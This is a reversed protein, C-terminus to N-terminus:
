ALIEYVPNLIALQGHHEGVVGQAKLRVGVAIGPVERRGLFVVAVGGSDDALTCELAPVGSWPQVRMSRIRGSVMVRQRHEVAGIPITGDDNPTAVLTAAAGDGDSTGPADGAAVKHAPRVEVPTPKLDLHYPVVTVNCHPLTSLVKVMEDSTRDHLLRHWFRSYERRPILVSVETEGDALEQAAIEAAAQTVRRDQCEVIDLSLRGPAFTRRWGSASEFEITLRLESIARTSDPWVRDSLLAAVHDEYQFRPVADDPQHELFAKTLRGSKRADFLPLRGGHILNHVLATIFVTKGARSLGTVGLRLSPSGFGTLRGALTDLAIRAEDTLTTHSALEIAEDHGAQSANGDSIPM